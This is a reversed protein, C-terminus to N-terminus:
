SIRALVEQQQRSLKEITELAIGLALPDKGAGPISPEAYPLTTMLLYYQEGANSVNKAVQSCGRNTWIPLVVPSTRRRTALEMVFFLYVTVLGSKTWVRIM